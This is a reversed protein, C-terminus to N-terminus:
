GRDGGLARLEALAARLAAQAADNRKLEPTPPKDGLRNDSIYYGKFHWLTKASEEIAEIVRDRLDIPLPLTAPPEPGDCDCPM